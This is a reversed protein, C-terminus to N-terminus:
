VEKRHGCHPCVAYTASRVKSSGRLIAFLALWGIVPIFLLIIYILMTICGRRKTVSATQMIMTTGCKWCKM